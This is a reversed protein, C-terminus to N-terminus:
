QHALTAISKDDPVLEAARRYEVIASEINSEAAFAHGAAVFAFAQQWNDWISDFSAPDTEKTPAPRDRGAPNRCNIMARLNQPLTNEYVGAHTLYDLLPRVDTHLPGEGCFCDVEDETLLQCSALKLPDNLGVRELDHQVLPRTMRKRWDNLDIRLPSPAGVLIVFDNMQNCMYWVSTHEFAERFSRFVMQLSDTSVGTIPVWACGIGDSSLNHKILEFCEVTYLNGNGRYQISTLDNVIVDYKDTALHLWSRADDLILRYGPYNADLGQRLGVLGRNQELFWNEAAPVKREIEVCHTEINHLRMSYSTGGTGFGVTLARKPDPHLLLPLHALMKQDTILQENTGAVSQSDVYLTRYINDGVQSQGIHVISTAGEAYHVVIEGAHGSPRIFRDGYPSLLSVMVLAIASVPLIRRGLATENPAWRLAWVAVVFNCLSLLMMAARIGAFPILVIGTLIVGVITGLSNAAYVSGIMLGPAREPLMAVILPLTAGLLITPLLVVCAVMAFEVWFIHSAGEAQYALGVRGAYDALALTIPACLALLVQGVSVAAAPALRKIRLLRAGLGSGIGLGLLYISLIMAFVYVSNLTFVALLRTWAVEYGLATLGSLAAILMVHRTRRSLTPQVTAEDARGLSESAAPTTTVRTSVAIAIIGAVVNAGVAFLVAVHMGVYHLLFFGAIAAGTMAGVNNVAYFRGFSAGLSAGQRSVIRGMLPVTAGILISPAVFVICALVFRILNTAFFPVTLWPLGGIVLLPTGPPVARAIWVYVDMLPNIAFSVIIGAIAICLEISGYLRIPNSSRDARRAFWRAGLALGAMFATLVTTVSWTSVGFVLTLMRQWVVEYVLAAFGSLFFCGYLPLLRANM